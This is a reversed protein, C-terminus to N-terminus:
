VLVIGFDDLLSGLIIWFHDWFSGLDIWLHDWCWGWIIEFHYCFLFSGVIICFLGSIIGFIDFCSGVIM